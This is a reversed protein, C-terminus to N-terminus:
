RCYDSLWKTGGPIYTKIYEMVQAPSECMSFLTETDSGAFRKDISHRVLSCLPEFYGLTNLLVIPKSHRGLQKLTLCGFLEDYTGIGGPLVVFADSKENMLQKREDMTETFILEGSDKYLIGPEDFFSPAIGIIYGGYEAAGKACRGMLGTCGGGFVLTSGNKAILSGMEEAAEYYEKDLKASSAGFVCINM